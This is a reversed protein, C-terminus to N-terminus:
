WGFYHTCVAGAQCSDEGNWTKANKINFYYTSGGQLQCAGTETGATIILAPEKNVTGCNNLLLDNPWDCPATSVGLQGSGSTMYYIGSFHRPMGVPITLRYAIAQGRNMTKQPTTRLNLGASWTVDVISCQVQGPQTVAVSASVPSGAGSTNSGTVMYTTTTAPSVVCSASASNCAPDSWQYQTAIPTCSAVLSVSSGAFISAPSPTLTCIPVAVTVTTQALAGTGTANTGSVTYTHVGTTQPTATCVAQTTECAPDSWSYSSAAPTCTATLQSSMGMDVVAPNAVLQCAPAQVTVTASAPSSAGGSGTGVVTYQTTATPTVTGSATTATFAPPTNTWAYSTAAPNCNAVLSVTEGAGIVKPTAELTCVTALTITVASTNGNGLANRGTVTYATTAQPAVMCSAELTSCSSDSWIYSTAAPSCNAVLTHTKNPAFAVSSYTLTCTPVSAPTVPQTPATPATPTTPQSASTPQVTVSVEPGAGYANSGTLTYTTATAVKVPCASANTPCGSNSSWRFSTAEPTCEALLTATLGVVTPAQQTVTCVPVAKCRVTGETDIIVEGSCDSILEEGSSVCSVKGTEQIYIKDTCTVAGTEETFTQAQVIQTGLLLCCIFKLWKM